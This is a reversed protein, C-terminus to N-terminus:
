QKRTRFLTRSRTRPDGAIVRSGLTGWDPFIRLAPPQARRLSARISSKKKADSSASSEGHAPAAHSPRQVKIPKAVMAVMAVVPSFFAAVPGSSAFTCRSHLPLGHLFRERDRHDMPDPSDLPAARRATRPPALQTSKRPIIRPERFRV